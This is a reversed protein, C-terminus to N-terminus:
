KSWQDAFDGIVPLKYMEGQYAKLMLIIWLAMAALGVIGALWWMLISLVIALVAIVACLLLSQVACFRVFKRKDMVLFVISAVFGVGFPCYCLLGAVNEQIGATGSNNSM